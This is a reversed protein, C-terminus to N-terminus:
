FPVMSSMYILRKELGRQGRPLFDGALIVLEIAQGTYEMAERACGPFVNWWPVYQLSSSELLINLAVTVLLAGQVSTLCALRYSM